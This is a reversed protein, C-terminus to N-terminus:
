YVGYLVATTATANIRKPSIPHVVGTLLVGAPITLTTNDENVLVIVGDTKVIIGRPRATFNVTDSTTLEVISKAPSTSTPRPM